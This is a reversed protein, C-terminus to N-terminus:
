VSISVSQRQGNKLRKHWPKRDNTYIIRKTYLKSGGFNILFGLEYESNRLYDYLQNIVKRPLQELAKMEIIIKNEVIGDPRYSGVIKGTKPSYIRISKEQEFQIKKGTLEEKYANQYVSEKHGPGFNKRVEIAAGIVQYSLDEHLLKQKM